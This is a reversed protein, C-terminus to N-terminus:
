QYEFDNDNEAAHKSTFLLLYASISFVTLLIFGIIETAILTSRKYLLEHTKDTSVEEKARRIQDKNPGIQLINDTNVNKSQEM